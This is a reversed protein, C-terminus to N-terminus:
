LQKVSWQPNNLLYYMFLRELLFLSLPYYDYGTSKTYTEPVRNRMYRQPQNLTVLTHAEATEIKVIAPMLVKDCYDDLVKGRCVFYNSYCAYPAREPMAYHEPLLYRFAPRFSQGHYENALVLPEHNRLNEHFTYVDYGGTFMDETITKNLKAEAKWSLVGVLDDPEIKQYLDLILSNELHKTPCPNYLPIAWPLLQSKQEEKYYAQYLKLSPM